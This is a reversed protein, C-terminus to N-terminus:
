GNSLKEQSVTVVVGNPTEDISLQAMTLAWVEDLARDIAKSMESQEQNYFEAM